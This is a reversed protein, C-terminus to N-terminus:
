QALYSYNNIIQDFSVVENILLQILRHDDIRNGSTIKQVQNIDFAPYMKLHMSLPRVCLKNCNNYNTKKIICNDIIIMTSM